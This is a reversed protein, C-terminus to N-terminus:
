GDQKPLFRNTILSAADVPKNIIKNKLMFKQLKNITNMLPPSRGSLLLHNEERDPIRLGSLAIKFDSISIDQFNAMKLMAKDKHINIFELTKFYGSVLAEIQESKKEATAQKIILVDVIENKISTSDFLVHGKNKLIKSKVPEFTVIADVENSMFSSFHQNYLVPIINLQEISIEADTELARSIFFAGLASSELGVRKDKLDRISAINRKAIIADGGHSIDLVTIIQIPDRHKSQLLIAEDLTVAAVDVIDQEFARIVETASSVRYNVVEVGKFLKESIALPISEYGTWTNHAIRLTPQNSFNDCASVLFILCLLLHRIRSVIM